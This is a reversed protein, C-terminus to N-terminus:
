KEVKAVGEGRKDSASFLVKQKDDSVQKWMVAQMNGYQRDLLKIEHGLAKLASISKKSFQGPEMQIVDPLYQHHFRSANIATELDLNSDVINMIALALMSIIRSGGPTGLVTVQDDQEIFSPSMSSLPRKNAAVENATGGVLGYVNPTGPKISFDDMENNLFVGTGKPIFGSGFPYNISLTAAVRNGEADLVSFHTTDQGKTQQKTQEGLQESPTATESVEASLRQLYADSILRNIDIDVFDADGLYVSRDRYARRMAEVVHHKNLQQMPEPELMQVMKFIQALTIGGSSPPSASVITADRYEFRIPEREVVRYNKLDRKRWIGGNAQVDSVLKDAVEGKYFGDFGKDALQILTEALDQQIITQGLVAKGESLFIQKAEENFVKGRFDLYRKLEPTVVFGNSAYEIAPQLSQKLPLKGYRKSLHVLAAPMGPIAAALPGNLSANEIVNGDQDLYMDRHASSPAKERGDLMVQKGDYQRHLLWFGGGGLGSGRPEVVALAASVAVAADFANGGQRLIQLGAETALPHASAVAVAPLFSSAEQKSINLSQSACGTILISFLLVYHILKLKM